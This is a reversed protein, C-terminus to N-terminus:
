SYYGRKEPPLRKAIEGMVFDAVTQRSNGEFSTFELIKGGGIRFFSINLQGTKPDFFGASCIVPINRHAAFLILHGADAVARALKDHGDGEPHIGVANKDNFAKVMQRTGEYANAGRVLITSESSKSLKERALDQFTSKDEGHAWLVEKGTRKKVESSTILTHAWGKLPGDTPHNSLVLIATDQLEDLCDAGYIQTRTKRLIDGFESFSVKEGKKVRKVAEKFPKREMKTLNSSNRWVLFDFARDQVFDSRELAEIITKVPPFRRVPNVVPELAEKIM